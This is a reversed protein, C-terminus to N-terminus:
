RRQVRISRGIVTARFDQPIARSGGIDEFAECTWTDPPSALKSCRTFRIDGTAHASVAAEVDAQTVGDQNGQDSAHFPWDFTLWGAAFGVALCLIAVAVYRM